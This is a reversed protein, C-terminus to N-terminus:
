STLASNRWRAYNVIEECLAFGYKQRWLPYLSNNGLLLDQDKPWWGLRRANEMEETGPILSYSALQVRAGLGHVFDITQRVQEPIQEALGMLVYVGIDRRAFGAKELLQLADALEADCVKNQQQAPVVSEFSLRLESFGVSRMLEALEADIYRLQLGNPTHWNWVFGSKIFRRLIPKIHADAAFLLADDFFAMNTIQWRHHLWEVERFVHDPTRRRYGRVLHRSACFTCRFPCGRSTLLATSRLVPYPHYIPFPLEDLTQYHYKSGPGNCLRAVLQVAKEEGEGTILYDPQVQRQAHEPCLSAYIGGLVIPADPFFDRLLQVMERVAPYWYTMYSTILIVSPRSLGALKKEVLQKPLGYRAYHRPIDQLIEPKAIIERHFKGSGDSKGVTTPDLEPDFRDLCDLLQIEYGLQELIAGITLLGIPKNWFDYAAFDYIWPNVLLISRSGSSM